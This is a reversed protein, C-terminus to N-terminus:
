KKLIPYEMHTIEYSGDMNWIPEPTKTLNNNSIHTPIPTIYPTYM